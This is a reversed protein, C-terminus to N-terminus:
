VRRKTKSHSSVGGAKLFDCIVVKSYWDYGSLYALTVESGELPISLGLNWGFIITLGVLQAWVPMMPHVSNFRNTTLSTNDAPRLPSVTLVLVPTSLPPLASM